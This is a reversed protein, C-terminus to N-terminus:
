EAAPRKLLRYLAFRNKLGLERAAQTLNGGCAALTREITARDPPPAQVDETAAAASDTPDPDSEAGNEPEFHLQARFEASAGIYDGTSTSLAIWLLRDLERLHHTYRHRLLLRTVEPDIRPEALAGGRREFFRAALSSNSMASRDLLHRILLPIDERREDIGPIEVRVPFRAALDHKLDTIPRNTAAVMTFNSHRQQSEGLRQYDGGQDLVRLLHGQIAQPLEGLEDLFLTSGDAEGILGIREPAGVNPYNKANGFLEADVLGEPFTAANRAILKRSGRVSLEHLARAALEKGAGSAGHLLIHKGSQAAFALSERLSWATKSEGVIGHPDAAGFPFTLTYSTQAYLTAEREVVFLVVANRLTIVDGPIVTARSLPGRGNVFLPCRGISSIDISGNDLPHLELQARSIRPCALPPSASNAYPRQRRFLLRPHKDSLDITGRGLLRPGELPATEGIREPEELSWAIVLHPVVPRDGDV